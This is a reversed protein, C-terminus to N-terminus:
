CSTMWRNGANTRRIQSRWRRDLESLLGRKKGGFGAVIDAVTQLLTDRVGADNNHNEPCISIQNTEPETEARMCCGSPSFQALDIHCQPMTGKWYQQDYRKFLKELRKTTWREPQFSM